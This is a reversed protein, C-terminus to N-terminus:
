TEPAARKLYSGTAVPPGCSTLPVTIVVTNLPPQLVIDLVLVTLMSSVKKVTLVLVSVTKELQETRYLNKIKPSLSTEPPDPYVSLAVYKQPIM